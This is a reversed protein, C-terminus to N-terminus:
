SCLPMRTSKTPFHLGPERLALLNARWIPPVPSRIVDGRFNPLADSFWCTNFTLHALITQYHTSFLRARSDQALYRTILNEERTVKVAAYGRCSHRHVPHGM